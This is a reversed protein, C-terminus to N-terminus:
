DILFIKIISIHSLNFQSYIIIHTCTDIRINNKHILKGKKKLLKIEAYSM